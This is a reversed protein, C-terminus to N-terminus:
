IQEKWGQFLWPIGYISSSWIPLIMQFIAFFFEQSNPCHM